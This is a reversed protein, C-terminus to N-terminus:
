WEVSTRVAGRLHNQRARLIHRRIRWRQCRELRRTELRSAQGSRRRLRDPSTNPPPPTLRCRRRQNLPLDSARYLLIPVQHAEIREDAVRMLIFRCRVGSARLEFRFARPAPRRRQDMIRIQSARSSIFSLADCIAAKLKYSPRRLRCDTPLPSFNRLIADTCWTTSRSAAGIARSSTTTSACRNILSRRTAAISCRLGRWSCRQRLCCFPGGLVFM